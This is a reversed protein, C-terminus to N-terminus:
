SLGLVARITGGLIAAQDEDGFGAARVDDVTVLEGGYVLRASGCRVVLPVVLSMSHCLSTDFVVNPCRAAVNPVQVSQDFTSFADLVVFRVEPFDSAVLETKWLQEASSEGVSHMFVALGLEGIREVYRRIWPSDNSVGQFRCHFTIGQMGLEHACREIEDFGRDGFLPEVVGVAAPFRDPRQRRYAAITDNVRRTDAIGDPRLYNSPGLVVAQDVGRADLRRVQQEVPDEGGTPDDGHGAVPGRAASVVGSLASDSGVHLHADIVRESSAPIGPESRESV